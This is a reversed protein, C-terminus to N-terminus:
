DSTQLTKVLSEHVHEKKEGGQTTHPLELTYVKLAAQRLCTKMRRMRDVLVEEEVGQEQHEAEEEGEEGVEALSHAEVKQRGEEM